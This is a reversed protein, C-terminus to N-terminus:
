TGLKQAGSTLHSSSWGGHWWFLKFRSLRTWADTSAELIHRWLWCADSGCLNPCAQLAISHTYNQRKEILSLTLRTSFASSSSTEELCTKPSCTFQPLENIHVTSTAEETGIVVRLSAHANLNVSAYILWHLLVSWMYTHQDHQLKQKLKIVHNKQEATLIQEFLAQQAWFSGKSASFQTFFTFYNWTWLGRSNSSTKSAVAVTRCHPSLPSKCFRSPSIESQM